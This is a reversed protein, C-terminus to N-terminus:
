GHGGGGPLGRITRVVLGDAVATMCAQVTAGDIQVQCEFCTGMMCFPGRPAGSVATSRTARRGAALLAAAVTDGAAASVPTGDVVIEVTPAAAELRRFSSAPNM